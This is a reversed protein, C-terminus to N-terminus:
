VSRGARQKETNEQARWATMGGRLSAVRKFGMGELLKAGEGSRGGSRCILVFPQDKDWGSAHRTLTGLPVSESGPLHGLEGVYESPERVDILRIGPQGLRLWDNNVEPIGNARQIPAWGRERPASEAAMVPLGCAMNAPVAEAIHKPPDLKLSRMIAVFEAETKHGLRPNHDLEEEISSVTRGKYDHGPYVLTEKPLTFLQQTISAYLKNPNGQQFDTRGCGRILLADGTFVRRGEADYYSVCSDTHGPTELVHLRHRGIAVHDGQAVSIDACNSGAHRSLVSKSGLLQRLVGSSTVHDAHVHTDLTYKLRLNLEKLLATDREVQDRVPDILVAERTEPDALLYTYTASEPDFLQRFILSTM